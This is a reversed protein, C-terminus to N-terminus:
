SHIVPGVITIPRPSGHPHTRALFPLALLGALLVGMVVGLTLLPHERRARQIASPLSAM